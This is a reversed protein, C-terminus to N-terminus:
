NRKVKPLNLKKVTSFMRIILVFLVSIIIAGTDKIHSNILILYCVGGFIAAVAYIRKSIILPVRKVIIDRILGGGVGTLMGMFILLFVNTSYGADITVQVGYVTFFGLGVSDVVNNIREIQETHSYYYKRHTYAIVFVIFSTFLSLAIGQYDYFNSSPVIGLLTDRLTGGGLATILGLFLEGFLDVEEEIAIMAGSISFAVIGAQELWFLMSQFDEM